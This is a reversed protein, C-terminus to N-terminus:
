SWSSYSSQFLLVIQLSYVSWNLLREPSVIIQNRLQINTLCCVLILVEDICSHGSELQFPVPSVM